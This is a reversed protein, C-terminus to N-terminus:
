CRAVLACFHQLLGCWYAPNSPFPPVSECVHLPTIGETDAYNATVKGADLLQRIGVDDGLQALKMIDPAPPAPPPVDKLEMDASAQADIAASTTPKGKAPVASSAPNM